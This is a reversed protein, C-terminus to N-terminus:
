SWQKDKQKKFTQWYVVQLYGKIDETKEIKFFRRKIMKVISWLNAMPSLFRSFLIASLLCQGTGWAQQNSLQYSWMPFLYWCALSVLLYTCM